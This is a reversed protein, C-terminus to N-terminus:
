SRKNSKVAEQIADAIWQAPYTREADKLADAIMPTMMGVNAEYLAYINPREPMLEVSHGDADPTWTGADLQRVAERGQATNMFYVAEGNAQGCLLTGRQTARLLADDLAVEASTGGLVALGQMLATDTAFDARMLFRYK